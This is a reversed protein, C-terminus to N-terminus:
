NNKLIEIIKKKSAIRAPILGAVLTLLLGLLFIFLIIKSNIAIINNLGIKSNIFNNIVKGILKSIELTLVGSIIGIILNESLFLRKIDRSTAGLSKLIGIEHLRELVSIYTIISIMIISVILSIISFAILVYSIGNVFGKTMNVVTLSDDVINYNSLKDKILLKSKYDKPFIYIDNIEETFVDPNYIIGSSDSFYNNNSTVIASIILKKNNIIIEKGLVEEYKIQEISLYKSIIENISKNNDLLLMVENNNVPYEGVLLEFYNNTPNSYLYENISTYIEKYYSVGDILNKDIEEIINILDNDIKNTVLMSSNNSINIMGEKYTDKNKSFANNLDLREKSIIIPYNYLSKEEFLKIEKNFGSSIALVLTLSILGISFALTTLYTRSKKNSLNKVSMKITNFLSLKTKKLTFNNNKIVKHPNTDEIIKGDNIRIIRDSYKKALTENHTVMIVLKDKSIEKLIEMVKISNVSDLAGTPEDALIIKVNGILSRAIAVRQEEGGSLKNTKQKLLNNIGLKDLIINLKKLGCKYGKLNSNINLNDKVNLYKILNYNQFIFNIYNSRYYDQKKKSLKFINLNGLYLEGSDPKEIASIINLLTSKGSGSPGLICVLEKERFNINIDKLVEVENYIKNINILKIM